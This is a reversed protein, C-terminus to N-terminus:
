INKEHLLESKLLFHGFHSKRTQKRLKDSNQFPVRYAKHKFGM